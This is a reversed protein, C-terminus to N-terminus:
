ARGLAGIKDMLQAALAGYEDATVRRADACVTYPSGIILRVIGFIPKKRPIYM